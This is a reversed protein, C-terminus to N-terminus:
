RKVPEGLRAAASLAERRRTEIDIVNSTDPKLWSSIQQRGARWLPPVLVALALLIVAAAFGIVAIAALQWGIPLDALPLQAISQTQM